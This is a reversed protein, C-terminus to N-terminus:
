KSLIFIVQIVLPAGPMRINPSPRQIPEQGVMVGSEKRGEGEDPVTQKRTQGTWKGLTRRHPTPDLLTQNSM